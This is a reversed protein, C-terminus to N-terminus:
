DCLSPKGTPSPTWTWVFRGSPFGSAEHRWRGGIATWICTAMVLGGLFGGASGVLSCGIRWTFLCTGITLVASGIRAGAENRGCLSFGAMQVWNALPPKEVRLRGNFTPVVWDGSDLMALSCAANKPEDDDWLAPGGLNVLLTCAAAMAIFAAHLRPHIM